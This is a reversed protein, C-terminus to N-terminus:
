EGIREKSELLAKLVSKDSDFRSCTAVFRSSYWEVKGNSKLREPVHYQGGAQKILFMGATVDWPNANTQFTVDARGSAVYALELATSGLRRVAHFKGIIQQFFSFDEDLAVGGEYPFGTMLLATNDRSNGNSVISKGNLSAGDLSAKFMEKRVPDYIVGAIIENEYVAGISICFFPIGSVFNNTGDIPDIIWKVSGTGQEGNEEGIVCSNPYSRTLNNVLLTEVKRDAETVLDYYGKKEEPIIGSEFVEMIYPAVKLASEKAISMLNLSLQKLENFNEM